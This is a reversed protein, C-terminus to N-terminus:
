HPHRVVDEAGQAPGPQRSGRRQIDGPATREALLHPAKGIRSGRSQHPAQRGPPFSAEANAARGHRRARWAITTGLAVATALVAVAAWRAAVRPSLARSQIVVEIRHGRKLPTSCCFQRGAPPKISTEPLNCRVQDTAGAEVTLRFERCPLDISRQWTCQRQSRPLTYTFRLEHMGPPWPVHTVLGGSGVSFRRGFFEKDFTAREFEMPIALELTVPPQDGAPQGVYCHRTPNEIRLYETVRLALPEARVTAEHLQLVLPNPAEVADYVALRVAARPQAATLQVRPGPYHVGQRNAGPLYLCGGTVPLNEFRFRGHEDCLTKTWPIFQGARRIRLVVEAGPVPVDGASGNVVVGVLVGPGDVPLDPYAPEADCVIAAACLCLAIM